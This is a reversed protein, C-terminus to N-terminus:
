HNDHDNPPGVMTPDLLFIKSFYLNWSISFVMFNLAIQFFIGQGKGSKESFKCFNGSKELNERVKELFLGKGPKGQGSPVRCGDKVCPM